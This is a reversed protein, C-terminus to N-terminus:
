QKSGRQRHWTGNIARDHLALGRAEVSRRVRAGQSSPDILVDGLFPPPLPQLPEGHDRFSFRKFVASGSAMRRISSCIRPNKNPSPLRPARGGPNTGWPWFFYGVGSGATALLERRAGGSRRLLGLLRGGGWGKGERIGLIRPTVCRPQGYGARPPPSQKAM